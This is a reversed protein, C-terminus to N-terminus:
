GPISSPIHFWDHESKDESLVVTKGTTVDPYSLQIMLFASRWLISAKLNHQLLSQLSILSTLGLPFWGQINVPLVSASAGISQGGSAFFQNVPFSGSALFPEFCFSFCAAYSSITLCYWQSPPHSNPNVRPSLPLYLLRAHQLGHHWLSESMVWRRFVVVVVVDCVCVCGEWVLWAVEQWLFEVRLVLNM